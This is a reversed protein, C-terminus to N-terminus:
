RLVQYFLFKLNLFKNQACVVRPYVKQINVLFDFATRESLLLILHRPPHSSHAAYLIINRETSRGSRYEVQGWQNWFFCGLFGWRQQINKLHTQKQQMYSNSPWVGLDSALVLLALLSWRNLSLNLKPHQQPITVIQTSLWTSHLLLVIAQDGSPFKKPIQFPNWFFLTCDCPIDTLLQSQILSIWLM